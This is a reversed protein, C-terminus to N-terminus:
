KDPHVSYAIAQARKLAEEKSEIKDNHITGKKEWSDMIEKIIESRSMSKDITENLETSTNETDLDTSKDLLTKKDLVTNENLEKLGEYIEKM